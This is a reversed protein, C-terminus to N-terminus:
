CQLIHASRLEPFVLGNLKLPARKSQKIELYHIYRIAKAVEFLSNWSQLIEHARIPPINTEDAWAQYLDAEGYELLLNYTKGMDKGEGYDHTYSGLYTLIPVQENSNLTLFARKESEFDPRKGGGYSKLVM